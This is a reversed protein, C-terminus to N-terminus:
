AVNRTELRTILKDKWRREGGVAQALLAARRYYLQADV